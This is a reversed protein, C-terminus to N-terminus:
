QLTFIKDYRGTAVVQDLSEGYGAYIETGAPLGSVDVSDLVNLAVVAPATVSLLPLAVGNQLQAWGAPSKYFLGAGVRAVIYINKPGSDPMAMNAQLGLAQKTGGAQGSFVPTALSGDAAVSFVQTLAFDPGNDQGNYRSSVSRAMLRVSHTGGALTISQSPGSKVAGGDFSWEYAAVERGPTLNRAEFTYTSPATAQGVIALDALPAVSYSTVLKFSKEAKLQGGASFLIRWTGPLVSAGSKGNWSLSFWYSGNLFSNDWASSEYLTGDPAVLELKMSQGVAIGGYYASFYLQATNDSVVTDLSAAPRSAPPSATVFATASEGSNLQYAPSVYPSSAAVGTAGYLAICGQIDDGKLSLQFDSSHYPDAFMISDPQSSHDLGLAHGFEHTAVAELLTLNDIQDPSSNLRIDAESIQQSGFYIRTQGTASFDSQWGVVNTRDREYTLTATTGMYRLQAGCGNQWKQAARRLASVVDVAALNAPRGADNYWWEMVGNQWRAGSDFLVYEFKGDGGGVSAGATPAISLWVCVCCVLAARIAM